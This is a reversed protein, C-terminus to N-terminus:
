VVKIRRRLSIAAGGIMLVVGTWVVMMLPKTSIQVILEQGGSNKRMNGMHGMIGDIELVVSKNEVNMGTLIVQPQIMGGNPNAFAPLTAPESVREGRENFSLSPIVEQEGDKSTVKLVAGVKMGGGQAHQGTEFKEFEIQYGGLQKSEGKVLELQIGGGQPESMKVDVPSIYLDRMPFIKISPERLTSQNYESFYLKPTAVYSQKGDSVEIQMQPKQANPDAIGKFTFQFGQVLQPEGQKLTVTSTDDFKGSGVIGILLLATGIHAIPGGLTDWGNKYQRFAIIVNSVLGFAASGVLLLLEIETVGAVYAIALALLTLVLSMSLRKLLGSKREDGWGLFPTIGLLIAMGIAVPMNVKNYFSTEVQSAKGYLGTILPSSMGILTFVAALGLVFLGLLLAVERSLSNISIKPSQLERFRFLFMGYGCVLAILLGGVLQKNIGLDTFSHVSFDALVGSRTLFTAYLVLIFSSLALFINTKKLAGKAKQILLGHVSALLVLWPILSSNEVPDWGWYGGWGLVEYAWFGGIIIGTGLSLSAFATWAFGVSYWNMYDKRILGSLVLAFPFLTAAYGLFLIPPHIAMWPDQLLPNMGSGDLPVPNSAAFPSKVILLLYLFTLFASVIGMAYNDHSKSTKIFFFGMVAVLLAWLLFTGEQGAWFASVLYLAPLSNSSYHAVYYLAYNHGFLGILMYASAACSALLAVLYSYFAIRQKSPDTKLKAAIFYLFTAMASALLAVWLIIQGINM